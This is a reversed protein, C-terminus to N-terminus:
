SARRLASALSRLILGSLFGPQTRMHANRDAQADILASELANVFGRSFGSAYSSYSRRGFYWDPAYTEDSADLVGAFRDNWEREVDLAAAYPLFKDFLRATNESEPRMHHFPRGTEKLWLRFGEIEDLMRRGLLTPARMLDYFLAMMLNLLVVIAAAHTGLVHGYLLVMGVGMAPFTLYMILQWYGSPNGPSTSRMRELGARLCKISFPLWIALAATLMLSELPKEAHTLGMTAMTGWALLIGPLFFVLNQKFFKTEYERRLSRKMAKVAAPFPTPVTAAVAIEERNGAFLKRAIAREGPSLTQMDSCDSHRWLRFRNPKEEYIAFYGKVAIDIIACAFTRQDFSMNRIFRMAGPSLGSPPEPRPVINGPARDRGVGLWVALYYALTVLFGLGGAMTAASDTEFWAFKTFAQPGRLIYGAPMLVELSLGEHPKLTRPATLFLQRDDISFSDLIARRERGVIWAGVGIPKGTVPVKVTAEAAEIPFTWKTGTLPWHFNDRDETHLVLGSVIYSLTYTYRGPSLFVGKKGMYVRVGHPLKDIRAAIEEGDRHVAVLEYRPTRTNGDNDRIRGPLDRYLGQRIRDGRAEVTITESIRTDGSGLIQIASSFAVVREADERPVPSNAYTDSAALLSFAALLAVLASRM